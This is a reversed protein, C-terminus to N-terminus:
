THTHTHTHTNDRNLKNTHCPLQGLNTCQPFSPHVDSSVALVGLTCDASATLIISTDNLKSHLWRCDLVGADMHFFPPSTSLVDSEVDSYVQNNKQNNQNNNKNNLINNISFLQIGGIRTVRDAMLQYCGCAGWGYLLDRNYANIDICDVSYPLTFSLLEKGEM